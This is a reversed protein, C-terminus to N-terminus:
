AFRSVSPIRASMTPMPSCKHAVRFLMPMSSRAYRKDCLSLSNQFVGVLVEGTSTYLTGQALGTNRDALSSSYREKSDM